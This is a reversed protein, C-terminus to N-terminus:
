ISFFAACPSFSCISYIGNDNTAELLTTGMDKDKICMSSAGFNVMDNNDQCLWNAFLLHLKVNPVHM